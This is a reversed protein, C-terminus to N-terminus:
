SQGNHTRPVKRVSITRPVEKGIELDLDLFLKVGGQVCYAGFTIVLLCISLVYVFKSVTLFQFM